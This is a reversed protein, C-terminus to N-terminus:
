RQMSVLFVVTSESEVTRWSIELYGLYSMFGHFQLVSFNAIVSPSFNNKNKDMVSFDISAVDTTTYLTSSLSSIALSTASYILITHAM